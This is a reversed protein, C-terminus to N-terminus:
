AAGASGAASGQARGPRRNLRLALISCALILLSAIVSASLYWQQRGAFQRFVETELRSVAVALPYEALKRYSMHRAAGEGQLVQRFSGADGLRMHEALLSGSIDQGATAVGAGERARVIADTGVLMAVGDRGLDLEGYVRSFYQPDVAIMAVGGFSGDAKNIRMTLQMSWTGAALAKVPKGVHMEGTDRAAHMGFQESRPLDAHMFAPVSGMLLSGHEDVAGLQNFVRGVVMARAADGIEFRGNHTEFQRKVLLLAQDASKLTRATHEAVARTLNADSRRLNELTQQRDSELQALTGSWVLTVLILACVALVGTPRTALLAALRSGIAAAQPHIAACGSQPLDLTKSQASM